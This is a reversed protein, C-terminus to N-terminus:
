ISLIDCEPPAQPVLVRQCVPDFEPALSLAEKSVLDAKWFVSDWKDLNLIDVYYGIVVGFFNKREM